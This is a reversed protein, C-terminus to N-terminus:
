ALILRDLIAPAFVYAHYGLLRQLSSKLEFIKKEEGHILIIRNPKPKILQTFSHLQIKDAHASFGDIVQISARIEVEKETREERLVIKRMGEQLSRGLSGKAQYGVLVVTNKEDKALNKLYFVSPGGTLMGSPAIIISPGGNIIEEREDSRSVTTFLDLSFPELDEWLVRGKMTRSMYEPYTTHIATSEHIMGDIYVPIDKLRGNQLAEQICLMVEQARGVSFAPILVKGGRSVTNIITNILNEEAMKLPPKSDTRGGYTSEMILTDLRPFIHDARDLLKSNRFRLDGTYLLTHKNQGITIYAMASGLIHGANYFSLKVDPGIDVLEKYDVTIVHNFVRKVDRLSFFPTLGERKALNLYDILLLFILDRTPETCYIPGKFGYKYLLPLAGSHDLHAHTVVIADLLDLSFEPASFKPFPEGGGVNLGCDLM